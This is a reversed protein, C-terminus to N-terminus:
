GRQHVSACDSLMVVHNNGPAAHYVTGPSRRHLRVNTDNPVPDDSYARHPAAAGGHDIGTALDDTRSEYIYM